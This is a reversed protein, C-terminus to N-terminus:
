SSVLEYTEYNRPTNLLARAITVLVIIYHGVEGCRSGLRLQRGQFQDGAHAHHADHLACYLLRSSCIM